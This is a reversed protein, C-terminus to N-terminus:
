KEALQQYAKWVSAYYHMLRDPEPSQSIEALCFGEYNIGNLLTILEQYPYDPIGVDHIHVLGIRDKVLDFNQRISDDVTEGNNSNWCVKLNPHDGVDMITKMNPLECTVQGHVEMRIDVGMNSAFEACERAALGIQELTKELPVGEDVHVGNPRVKVGSANLDGALLVYEKTGEINKKVEDEDLSHYEFASGLGALAVPSDEFKRQVEHREAKSLSIEVGHAHTTRLEVGEFGTDSCKEIITDVDWDNALNYTVLGLKM